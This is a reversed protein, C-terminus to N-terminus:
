PLIVSNYPRVGRGGSFASKVHIIRRVFDFLPPRGDNEGLKDTASYQIAAAIL